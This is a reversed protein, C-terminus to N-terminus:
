VSVSVGGGLKDEAWRALRLVPYCSAFYMLTSM